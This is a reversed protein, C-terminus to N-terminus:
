ENKKEKKKLEENLLDIFAKRAHEQVTQRKMEQSLFCFFRVVIESALKKKRGIVSSNLIKYTQMIENLNAPRKVIENGYTEYFVYVGTGYNISNSEYGSKEVIFKKGDELVGQNFSFFGANAPSALLALAVMGILLAIKKM